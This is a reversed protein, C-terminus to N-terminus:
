FTWRLTCLGLTVGSAANARRGKGCHLVASHNGADDVRADLGIQEARELFWRRAELHADGLAPRHVGGDPTAGIAALMEFDTRLRESNVRLALLSENM